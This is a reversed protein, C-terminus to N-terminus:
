KSWCRNYQTFRSRNNSCNSRAQNRIRRPAMQVNGLAHHREAVSVKVIDVEPNRIFDGDKDVNVVATAKKTVVGGPLIEIVNVKNSKLKMKLKDKSFDALHVSGKVSDISHKKMEPLYEGNDACLEGEVWVKGVNFDKLITM